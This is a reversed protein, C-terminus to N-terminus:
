SVIVSIVLYNTGKRQGGRISYDYGQTTKLSYFNSISLATQFGNTPIDFDVLVSYCNEQDRIDSRKLIINDTKVLDLKNYGTCALATSSLVALSLIIALVKKAMAM